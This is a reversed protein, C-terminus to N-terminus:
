RGGRAMEGAANRRRGWLYIQWRVTTLLSGAGSLFFLVTIHPAATALTLGKWPLVLLTYAISALHFLLLVQPLVGNWIMSWRYKIRLYRARYVEDWHLYDALTTAKQVAGHAASWAAAQWLQYEYAQGASGTITRSRFAPTELHGGEPFGTEVISEDAFATLLASAAPAAVVEAQVTETSDVLIWCLVEKGIAHFYTSAEGLRRFGMATLTAVLPPPQLPSTSVDRPPEAPASRYLRLTRWGAWARRLAIYLCYAIVLLQLIAFADM